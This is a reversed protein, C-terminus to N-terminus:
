RARGLADFIKAAVPAATAGGRGREVFVVVVVEPDDAAAWGAFWAHTTSGGESATTGTKGCVSFKASAALQASGYQVAERLGQLIVPQAERALRRYSRALDEVTGRLGWEGLCLLTREEPSSPSRVNWGYARLWDALRQGDLRNALQAFYSNCSYAIAASAALPMAVRPHSCDLQRGAIRVKTECQLAPMQIGSELAFLAVLPKLTSGFSLQRGTIDGTSALVAGTKAHSVLVAGDMGQMASLVAALLANM